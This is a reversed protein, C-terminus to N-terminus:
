GEEDGEADLGGANFFEFSDVARDPRGAGGLRFAEEEVHEVVGEVGAM